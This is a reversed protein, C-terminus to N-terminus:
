PEFAVLFGIEWVSDQKPATCNSKAGNAGCMVHVGVTTTTSSSCLQIRIMSCCMAYLFKISKLHLTPFCVHFLVSLFKHSPKTLAGFRLVGAAFVNMSCMFAVLSM